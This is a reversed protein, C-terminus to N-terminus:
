PASSTAHSFGQFGMSEVVGSENSAGQGPFGAIDAYVKYQWSTSDNPM